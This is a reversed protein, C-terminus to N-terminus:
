MWAAGVPVLKSLLQSYVIEAYQRNLDLWHSLFPYAGAELGGASRATGSRFAFLILKKHM